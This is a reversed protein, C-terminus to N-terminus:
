DVLTSKVEDGAESRVKYFWGCLRGLVTHAGVLGRAELAVLDGARLHIPACLMTPPVMEWIQIRVDIWPAIPIGNVTIRWALDSFAAASEASQGAFWIEGRYRVRPVRFSTVTTFTAAAPIVVVSLPFADIPLATFPPAIHSPPRINTQFNRFTEELLRSILLLCDDSQLWEPYKGKPVGEFIRDKVRGMKGTSVRGIIGPSPRKYQVYSERGSTNQVSGLQSRPDLTPDDFEEKLVRDLEGDAM